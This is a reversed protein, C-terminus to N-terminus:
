LASEALPPLPDLDHQEAGVAGAPHTFLMQDWSYGRARMLVQALADGLAGVVLTSGMAIVGGPDMVDDTPLLVVIDAIRALASDANSTLAVVKAGRLKVRESLDNLETSKGGRSIAIVVDAETIAGMTGHLADMPQLPVSPTGCVSLLHAMRHAIAGSTGSGTVFVKGRTALLLDVVDAFREDINDALAQLGHVENLVSQRAAALVPNSSTKDTDGM